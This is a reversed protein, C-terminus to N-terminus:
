KCIENKMRIFLKFIVDSFQLYDKGISSLIRDYNEDGKLRYSLLYTIINKPNRIGINECHNFIESRKIRQPTMNALAKLVTEREKNEGVISHYLTDLEPEYQVLKELGKLLHQTNVTGKSKFGKAGAFEDLALQGCLQVFYPFGSSM